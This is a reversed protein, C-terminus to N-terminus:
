GKERPLPAEQADSPAAFRGTNARYRADAHCADSILGHFAAAVTPELGARVAAKAYRLAERPREAAITAWATAVELAQGRAVAANVLGIAAAEHAGLRRGLVTLELARAPGILAPLRQMAGSGPVSGLTMEPFGISVGEEAVRLDCALALEMGGGLVHGHLVAISLIPSRALRDFVGWTKEVFRRLPEGALGRMHRLDAGASFARDGEGHVVIAGVEPDAELTALADILGDCVADDIANLVEPRSLRLFALRGQREVVVGTGTV